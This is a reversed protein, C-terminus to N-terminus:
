GDPTYKNIKVKLYMPNTHQVFSLPIIPRGPLYRINKSQVYNLIAKDKGSYKGMKTLGDISM